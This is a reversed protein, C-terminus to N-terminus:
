KNKRKKKEITWDDRTSDSITISSVPHSEASPIEGEAERLQEKPKNIIRKKKKKSEEDTSHSSVTQKGM